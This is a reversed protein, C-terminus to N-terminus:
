WTVVEWLGTAGGPVQWTDLLGARQLDLWRQGRPVAVRLREGPTVLVELDGLRRLATLADADQGWLEVAMSGLASGVAAGLQRELAAADLGPLGRRPALEEALPTLVPDKRVVPGGLQDLVVALGAASVWAIPLLAPAEGCLRDDGVETVVLEDRVRGAVYLEVLASRWGQEVIEASQALRALVAEVDAVDLGAALAVAARAPSSRRWGREPADLTKGAVAAALAPVPVGTAVLTALAPELYGLRALQVLVLFPLGPVVQPATRAVAPTALEADSPEPSVASSRNEPVAARDTARIDTPRGVTLRLVLDLTASDPLRDGAAAVVAGLLILLDVSHREIPARDEGIPAPTLVAAAIDGVANPSLRPAGPALDDALDTITAVWAALLAPSWTRAVAALRGSRSWAALAAAFTKRHQIAASVAPAPASELVARTPQSPPPPDTTVTPGASRSAARIADLVAQSSAPTPRGDRGLELTVPATVRCDVDAPIGMEEILARLADELAPLVLDVYRQPDGWSWGGRRRVTVTCDRVRLDPAGDTSTIM